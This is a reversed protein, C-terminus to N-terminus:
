VVLASDSLIMKCFCHTMEWLSNCDGKGSNFHVMGLTFVATIEYQLSVIM